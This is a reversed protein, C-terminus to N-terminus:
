RRRVVKVNRLQSYALLKNYRRLQLVAGWRLFWREWWHRGTSYGSFPFWQQQQQNFYEGEIEYGM